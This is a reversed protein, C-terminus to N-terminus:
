FPIDELYEYDMMPTHREHVPFGMISEFERELQNMMECMEDDTLEEGSIEDTEVEENLYNLDEM